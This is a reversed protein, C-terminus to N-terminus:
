RVEIKTAPQQESRTQSAATPAATRAAVKGINALVNSEARSGSQTKSLAVLLNRMSASEYGRFAAMSLGAAAGGTFLDGFMAAGAGAGLFPLTAQGTPTIVSAREANQTAQLLRLMGTFRDADAKPFAVGIREMSKELAGRFKAPSLESIATAGGADDILKQVVVARAREKGQPSLNRFLARVDSPKNSFLLLRAEEPTAEGTKLVRELTTKELDGAFDSLRGNAVAWKRFGKDGAQERIYDGMDTKLAAYLGKPGDVVERLAASSSKMSEDQFTDGISKRIAEVDNINEASALDNRWGQLKQTLGGFTEQRGYRGIAMDLADLSEQAVPPPAGATESFVDRKLQAYKAIEGGRKKIFDATVDDISAPTQKYQDALKEIMAARQDAQKAVAGATGVFPLKEGTGRLWGGLWTRPPRVNSTMVDVGERKGTAIVEAADPIVRSRAPATSGRNALGQFAGGLVGGAAAGLGAGTLSGEMGEGYGFGGLAGAGAGEAAARGASMALNGVVRGAGGGGLIEAAVGAGGTRERARRLLEREVDTGFAYNDAVDFDGTLMQGIARGVGGAEDSLGLTVGQAALEMLGTEGLQRELQDAAQAIKAQYEPDDRGTPVVSISGGAARVRDLEEQTVNNINQGYPAAIANLEDRTAGAAFAESLKTQLEKDQDTLFAEGEAAERTEPAAASPPTDGYAAMLADDIAPAAAGAKVKAAELLVRLRQQKDDITAQTDGLQPFYSRRYGELQEATYAAGTGLTLAADLVDRQAAEVRQRPESTLYNGATESVAGAMSGLIEPSQGGEIGTLNKLGNAVRTALFAATKEAETTDVGGRVARDSQEQEFKVRAREEAALKLEDERAKRAQEEPPVAGIIPQLSQMPVPQAQSDFQDFFNEQAM